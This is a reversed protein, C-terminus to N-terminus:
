PRMVGCTPAQWDLQQHEALMADLRESIDSPIPAMRRHEMDIYAGVVEFTASLAQTSQETMLSLMHFRKESRGLVRTRVAVVDGVHLETLYRTHSELAFSGANRQRMFELDFGLKRFIGFISCDFLHTYWMVNMHGMVDRYEEPITAEHTIPLQSLDYDTM